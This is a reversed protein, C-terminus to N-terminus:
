SRDATSSSRGATRDALQEHGRVLVASPDAAPGALTPEARDPRCPPIGPASRTTATPEITTM